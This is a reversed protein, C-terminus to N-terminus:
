RPLRPLPGLARRRLADRRHHERRSAAPRRGQARSIRDPLAAGDAHLARRGLLPLRAHRRVERGRIRAGCPTVDRRRQRDLAHPDRWAQAPLAGPDAGRPMYVGEQLVESVDRAPLSPVREMAIERGEHDIKREGSFVFACSRHRELFAVRRALFQPDWVDDDQLLTVYPSTAQQILRTWNAPAGLNRGTATYQVRPDDTFESVAAEVDGGGPGNESVVLRWNAHTQALVSAIAQGIFQPRRYAPM